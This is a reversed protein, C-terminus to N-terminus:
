QAAEAWEKEWISLAALIKGESDSLSLDPKIPAVAHHDKGIARLLNESTSCVSGTTTEYDAHMVYFAAALKEAGEKAPHTYIRLDSGLYAWKDHHKATNEGMEQDHLEARLRAPNEFVLKM